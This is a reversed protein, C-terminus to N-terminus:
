KWHGISDGKEKAGAMYTEETDTMHTKETGTM